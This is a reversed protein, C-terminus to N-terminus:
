EAPKEAVFEMNTITAGGAKVGNVGGDFFITIYFTKLDLASEPVEIYLTYSGAKLDTHPYWSIDDGGLKEAHCVCFKTDRDLTFDIRLYKFESDFGTVQAAVKAWMDRGDAWTIKTGEDTEEVTFQTPNGVSANTDFLEGIEGPTAPIFFRCDSIRMSGATGAPAGGYNLFFYVQQM